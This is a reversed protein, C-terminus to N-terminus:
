FIFCYISVLPILIGIDGLFFNNNLASSYQIISVHAFRFHLNALGFIIKEENLIRVFPLHYLGADPRFITDFIIIFFCFFISLILILMDIKKFKKKKFLFIFFIIFIIISNTVVSLPAFFNIILSLLSLYIFGIITKESFNKLNSTNKKEFFEGIALYIINTIAISSLLSFM